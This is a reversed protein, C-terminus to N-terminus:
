VAIRSPIMDVSNHMILCMPVCARCMSTGVNRVIQEDRGPTEFLVSSHTDIMINTNTNYYANYYM